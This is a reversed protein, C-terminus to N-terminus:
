FVFFRPTLYFICKWQWRNITPSCWTSTILATRGPNMYTRELRVGGLLSEYICKKKWAANSNKWSIELICTHYDCCLPSFSQTMGWRMSHEIFWRLQCAFLPRCWLHKDGYRQWPKVHATLEPQTYFCKWLSLCKSGSPEVEQKSGEAGGIAPPLPPSSSTPTHAHPLM